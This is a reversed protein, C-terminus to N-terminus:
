WKELPCGWAELAAKFRLVCGCQSCREFKSGRDMLHPCTRCIALRREKEERDAAKFGGQLLQKASEILSKAMVGVSPAKEEKVRTLGPNNAKKKFGIKYPGKFRTSTM